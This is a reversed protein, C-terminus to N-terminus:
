WESFALHHGVRLWQRRVRRADLFWVMCVGQPFPCGKVMWCFSLPIQVLQLSLAVLFIWDPAM